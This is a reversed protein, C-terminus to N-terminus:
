WAAALGMLASLFFLLTQLDEVYSCELILNLYADPAALGRVGRGASPRDGAARARSQLLM